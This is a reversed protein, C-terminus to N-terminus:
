LLGALLDLAHFAARTGLERRPKRAEPESLWDTWAGGSQLMGDLAYLHIHDIGAAKAAAWDAALERPDGFGQTLAPFTITGVEGLDLGARDGDRERARQGYLYALDPGLQAGLVKKFEPRYAMYSIEDWPLDVLPLGLARAVRDRKASGHLVLPTTVAHARIGRSHLEGLLDSLAAQASAYGADNKASRLRGLAKFWHHAAFDSQLSAMFQASPEFGLTIWDPGLGRRASAQLFERVWACIEATNSQHAWYGQEPALLLWPRLEVGQERAEAAIEFYSGDHLTAPTVAVALAAGRQALDHLEPQIQSPSLFESWILLGALTVSM